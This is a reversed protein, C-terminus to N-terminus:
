AVPKTFLCRHENSHKRREDPCEENALVQKPIFIRRGFRKSPVEGTRCLEYAGTRSIGLFKRFEEITLLEPLDQFKTFRDIGCRSKTSEAQSM